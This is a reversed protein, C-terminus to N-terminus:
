WPDVTAGLLLRGKLRHGDYSNVRFEAIGGRAPKKAAEQARREAPDLMPTSACAGTLILFALALPTITPMGM